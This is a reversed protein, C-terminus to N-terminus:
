IVFLLYVQHADMSLENWYTRFTDEDLEAENSLVCVTHEASGEELTFGEFVTLCEYVKQTYDVKEEYEYGDRTIDSVVLYSGNELQKVYDLMAGGKLSFQCIIVSDTEGAAFADWNEQGGVVTGNQITFMGTAAASDATLDAGYNQLEKQMGAAVEETEADLETTTEVAQDEAPTEEANGGCGAVGCAMVVAFLMAIMKKKM